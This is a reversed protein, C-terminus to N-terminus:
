VGEFPDVLRFLIPAQMTHEIKKQAVLLWLGADLATDSVIDATRDVLEIAIRNFTRPKGDALHEFIRAAWLEPPDKKLAKRRLSNPDSGETGMKARPSREPDSPSRIMFVFAYDGSREVPENTWTEARLDRAEEKKIARERKKKAQKPTLHQGPELSLDGDLEVELDENM